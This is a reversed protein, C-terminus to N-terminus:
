VPYNFSTFQRFIGGGGTALEDVCWSLFGDGRVWVMEMGFKDGSEGVILGLIGM